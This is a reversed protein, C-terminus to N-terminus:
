RYVIEIGDPASVTPAKGEALSVTINGKPTPISIKAWELGYLCPSLRITKMGPELIELGSLRMPLQYTPTGGWVHSYDFGYGEHIDWGEALGKQFETMYKWKSLLKMGYESFLGAKAVANLIFHM